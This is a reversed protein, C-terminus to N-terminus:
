IKNLGFRPEQILYMMNPNLASQIQLSHLDFFKPPWVYCSVGKQFHSIFHLDATTDNKYFDTSFVKRGGNSASIVGM